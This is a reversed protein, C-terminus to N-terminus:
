LARDVRVDAGPEEQFHRDLEEIEQKTRETEAHLDNLTEGHQHVMCPWVIDLMQKAVDAPFGHLVANLDRAAVSKDAEVKYEDIDARDPDVTDTPMGISYSLVLKAAQVHGEKAREIMARMIAQIDDDSVAALMAKRLEGVRRGFPNGPGGQNGPAFRGKADRGNSQAQEKQEFYEFIKERDQPLTATSTM